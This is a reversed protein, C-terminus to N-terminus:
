VIESIEEPTTNNPFFVLDHSSFILNTYSLIRELDVIDYLQGNLRTITHALQNRESDDLQSEILRFGDKIADCIHKKFFFFANRYNLLLSEDETKSNKLQFRAKLLEKFFEMEIEDNVRAPYIKTILCHYLNEFKEM